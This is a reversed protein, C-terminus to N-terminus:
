ADAVAHLELVGAGHDARRELALEVVHLEVGIRHETQADGGFHGAHRAFHQARSFRPRIACRVVLLGPLQGPHEALVELLEAAHAFLDALRPRALGAPTIVSCRYLSASTAAM